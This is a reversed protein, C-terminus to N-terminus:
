ESVPGRGVEEMARDLLELLYERENDNKVKFALWYRLSRAPKPWALRDLYTEATGVIPDPNSDRSAASPSGFHNIDEAYEAREPPIAASSENM